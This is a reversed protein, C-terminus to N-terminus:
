ALPRDPSFTALRVDPTTDREFTVYVRPVLNKDVIHAYITSRDDTPEYHWGKPLAFLAWAGQQFEDPELAIGLTRLEHKPLNPTIPFVRAACVQELQAREQVAVPNNFTRWARQLYEDASGFIRYAGLRRENWFIREREHNEEAIAEPDPAPMMNRFAWLLSELWPQRPKPQEDDQEHNAM